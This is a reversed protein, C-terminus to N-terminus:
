DSRNVRKNIGDLIVGVLIICSLLEILAIFRTCNDNPAIDGFSVSTSVCVSYYLFDWFSISERRNEHFLNTLNVLNSSMQTRKCELEVIERDFKIINENENKIADKLKEPVFMGWNNVIYSQVEARKKALEYNLNALEVYKGSLIMELSDMGQLKYQLDRIKEKYEKLVSDKFIEIRKLRSIDVINSLSDLKKQCIDKKENNDLITQMIIDLSEVTPKIFASFGDITIPMRDKIDKHFRDHIDWVYYRKVHRNMQESLMFSSTDHLFRSWNVLAFLLVVGCYYTIIRFLFNQKWFTYFGKLM